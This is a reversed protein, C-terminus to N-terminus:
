VLGSLINGLKLLIKGDLEQMVRHFFHPRLVESLERVSRRPSCRMRAAIEYCAERSLESGDLYM